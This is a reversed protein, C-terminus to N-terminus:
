VVLDALIVQELWSDRRWRRCFDNLRQSFSRRSAVHSKGCTQLISHLLHFFPLSRPSAHKKMKRGLRSACRRSVKILPFYLLYTRSCRTRSSLRVLTSAWAEHIRAFKCASAMLTALFAASLRAAFYIGRWDKSRTDFILAHRALFDTAAYNSYKSVSTSLTFKLNFTHCHIIYYSNFNKEIM